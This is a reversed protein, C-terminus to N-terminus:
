EVVYIFGVFPQVSPGHGCDTGTTMKAAKTGHQTFKYTKLLIFYLFKLVSLYLISYKQRYCHLIVFHPAGERYFHISTPARWHDHHSGLFKLKLHYKSIELGWDSKLTGNGIFDVFFDASFAWIEDLVLASLGISWWRPVTGTKIERSTWIEENKKLYCMKIFSYVSIKLICYLNWWDM